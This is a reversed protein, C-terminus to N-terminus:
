LDLLDSLIHETSPFRPRLSTSPEDGTTPAADAATQLEVLLGKGHGQFGCQEKCEQVYTLKSYVCWPRQDFM